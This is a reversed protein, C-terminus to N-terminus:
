IEMDYQKKFIMGNSNYFIVFKKIGKNRQQRGTTVQEKEITFLSFSSVIKSLVKIPLM